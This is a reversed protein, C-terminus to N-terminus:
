SAQDLSDLEDLIKGDVGPSFKRALLCDSERLKPLDDMTLIGPWPPRWDVYTLTRTTVTPALPSNMLMTQFFIEDPIHAHHFFRVYEPHATVYEQAYKLCSRHLYWYSSGFYPHLGNPIKRKMPIAVNQWAREWGLDRMWQPFPLHWHYHEIWRIARGNMWTPIPWATAQMFSAGAAAALRERIAADPKIPYDQATLCVAYDYVFGGDAIARIAKLSALVHGFDGWRCKHRELLTVNQLDRLGAAIRAFQQDSSRRDYHIFFAHDPAHLRRVLRIIADAGQYASIIYAIRIKPGPVPGQVPQNEGPVTNNFRQGMLHELLIASLANHHQRPSPARTM